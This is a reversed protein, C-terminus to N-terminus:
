TYDGAPLLPFSEENNIEDDWGYERFNSDAM